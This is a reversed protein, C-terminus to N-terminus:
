PGHLRIIAKSGIKPCLDVLLRALSDIASSGSIMIEYCAVPL